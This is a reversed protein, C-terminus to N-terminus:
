RVSETEFNRPYPSSIVRRMPRAPVGTWTQQAPLDHLLVAGMGLTAREGVRLRERVSSNMGLYAAEGVRVGGGLSVGACLTAYDDVQGDHTVVVHPMVVVHRGIRVDATLVTQALLISGLGVTCTTPIRVTPDVVTAFRDDTVGLLHLRARIASRVTGRGACILLQADPHDALSDIAGLIGIGNLATGHLSPEDDLIGIVEYPSGTELVALVERTLGGAALLLLPTM